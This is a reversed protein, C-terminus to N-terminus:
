RRTVPAAVAADSEVLAGQADFRYLRLHAPTLAEHRQPTFPRELRGMVGDFPPLHELADRIAGRESTGARGIAAVLLWTLDYAHLLGPLGPVQGLQMVGFRELAAEILEGHLPAYPPSPIRTSVVVFDVQEIAARGALAVFDGGLAGWHSFIPLRGSPQQQAMATVFAAAEGENAVLLVSDAGAVRSAAIRHDFRERGGWNYWQTTIISAGSRGPSALARRAAALSSRGWLNNPVVVALRRHGRALATEVLRELAWGDRLSLRFTFSPNRAHEMLDDAAAWPGLMVLRHEHAVDMQAAAVASFKGTFFAVLHEHSALEAVNDVGRAPVARNDTTVTALKRGGLVGGLRNVQRVATEVGLSIADDSLSTRDGKELDLGILVPPGAAHADRLGVGRLLPAGAVGVALLLRRRRLSFDPPSM